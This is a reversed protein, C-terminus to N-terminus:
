FSSLFQFVLLSQPLITSISNTQDWGGGEVDSLPRTFHCPVGRCGYPPTATPFTSLYPWICFPLTAGTKDIQIAANEERTAAYTSALKRSPQEIRQARSAGGWALHRTESPSLWLPSARAALLLQLLSSELLLAPEGHM